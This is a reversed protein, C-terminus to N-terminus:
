GNVAKVKDDELLKRGLLKVMELLQDYEKQSLDSSKDKNFLGKVISKAESQTIKKLTMEKWLANAMENTIASNESTNTKKVESLPKTLNQNQRVPPKSKTAPKNEAGWGDDHPDKEEELGHIAKFSYRKAYSIAMGAKKDDMRSLDGLSYDCSISQGSTHYLYTYLKSINEENTKILFTHGLGNKYRIDRTEDVMTALDAYEHNHSKRNKKIIPFESQAKILAKILETNEM